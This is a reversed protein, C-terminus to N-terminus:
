VEPMVIRFNPYKRQIRLAHDKLQSLGKKVSPYLQKLQDATLTMTITRSNVDNGFDKHTHVCNGDYWAKCIGFDFGDTVYMVPDVDLVILNAPLELDHREFVQLIHNNEYGTAGGAAASALQGFGTPPNVLNRAYSDDGVAYWEKLVSVIRHANRASMFIDVDKVPKGLLTDRIAGGAVIATPDHKWIERYVDKIESPIINRPRYM